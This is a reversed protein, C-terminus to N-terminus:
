TNWQSNPQLPLSSIFPPGNLHDQWQARGLESTIKTGRIEDPNEQYVNLLIQISKWLPEMWRSIIDLM